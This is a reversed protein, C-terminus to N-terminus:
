TAQLVLGPRPWPVVGALGADQFNKMEKTDLRRPVNYLAHCFEHGTAHSAGGNEQHTSEMSAIRVGAGVSNM